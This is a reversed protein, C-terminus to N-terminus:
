IPAGHNPSDESQKRCEKEVDPVLLSTSIEQRDSAFPIGSM